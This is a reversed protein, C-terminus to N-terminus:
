ARRVAEAAIRLADIAAETDTRHDGAMKVTALDALASAPLNFPKRRGGASVLAAKSKAGRIKPPTTGTTIPRAM